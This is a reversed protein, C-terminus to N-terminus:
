EKEMQKWGKLVFAIWFIKEEAVGGYWWAIVGFALGLFFVGADLVFLDSSRIDEMIGYLEIWVFLDIVRDRM